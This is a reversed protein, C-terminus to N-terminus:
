AEEVIEDKVSAACELFEEKEQEPVSFHDLTAAIHDITIQWDRESIRLGQHSTRM